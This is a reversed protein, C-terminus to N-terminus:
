QRVLRLEHSKRAVEPIDGLKGSWTVYGEKRITLATDLDVREDFDCPTTLQLNLDPVNVTAGVPYTSLRTVPALAQSDHSNSYHCAGAFALLGAALLHSARPLTFKM